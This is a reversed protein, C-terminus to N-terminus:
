LAKCGLTKFPDSIGDGDKCSVRGPEHYLFYLHILTKKQKVISVKETM